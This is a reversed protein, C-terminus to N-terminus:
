IFIIWFTFHWWKKDVYIYCLFLSSKCHRTFLKCPRNLLFPCALKKNVRCILFGWIRPSMRTGWFDVFKKPTNTRLNCIRLNENDIQLHCILFIKCFVACSQRLFVTRIPTKQFPNKINHLTSNKYEKHTLLFLIYKWVQPFKSNAFVAQSRLDCLVLLNASTCNAFRGGKRPSPLGM